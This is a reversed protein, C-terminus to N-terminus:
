VWDLSFVQLTSGLLGDMVCGQLHSRSAMTIM